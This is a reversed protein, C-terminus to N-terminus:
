KRHVISLCIDLIVFFSRIHEPRGWDTHNTANDGSLYALVRQVFIPHMNHTSVVQVYQPYPGEPTRRGFQPPLNPTSAKAFLDCRSTNIFCDLLNKVTVQDM